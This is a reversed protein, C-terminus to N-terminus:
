HSQEYPLNTNNVTEHGASIWGNIGDTIFIINKTFGFSDLKSIILEARRSNSCYVIIEKRDLFAKLQDDASDQFADINVAGQIHKESFMAASRGDILVSSRPNRKTVAKLADNAPIRSIKHSSCAFCLSIGFIIFLHKIM